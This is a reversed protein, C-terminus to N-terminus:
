VISPVEALLRRSFYYDLQRDDFIRGLRELGATLSALSPAERTRVWADFLADISIGTTEAAEPEVDNDRSHPPDHLSWGRVVDIVDDLDDATDQLADLLRLLEQSTTAM